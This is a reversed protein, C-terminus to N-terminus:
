LYLGINLTYKSLRFRSLPVLHSSQMEGGYIQIHKGFTGVYLVNIFSINWLTKVGGTLLKWLFLKVKSQQKPHWCHKFLFSSGAEGRIFNYASKFSFLGNDELDWLCVGEPNTSCISLAQSNISCIRRWIASDLLKPVSDADRKYRAKIFSNWLSNGIKWKWWLKLTFSKELDSLSRIGLGGEETPVCLHSWKKWHYNQKTNSSVWFFNAM